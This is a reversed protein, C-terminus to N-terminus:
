GNVPIVNTTSFPIPVKISVEQTPQSYTDLFSGAQTHVTNMTHDDMIENPRNSSDVVMGTSQHILSIRVQSASIASDPTFGTM